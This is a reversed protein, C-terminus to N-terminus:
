PAGGRGPRDDPGSGGNGGGTSGAAGGGELPAIVEHLALVRRVARTVARSTLTAGTINVIDRGRRLGPSLARGRFEDLWGEPPRYDPPEDFRLLEVREVERDPTVVIMLVEPLTRVRHADFYAVGLASDGRTGVYHTVVTQEVEVGSGALRRARALGASDLYATRREIAAPEPFARRLAEQQSVAEQGRVPGSAAATLVAAGAIAVAATTARGRPSPVDSCGAWPWM